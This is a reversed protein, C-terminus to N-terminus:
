HCGSDHCPEGDWLYASEYSSMDLYPTAKEGRWTSMKVLYRKAEVDVMEGTEHDLEREFADKIGTVKWNWGTTELTSKGIRKVYVMKKTIKTVQYFYNRTQDYGWSSVFIDAVKVPNVFAKAAAKRKTARERKAVATQQVGTVYNAIYIERRDVDKFHYHFDPKQRKGSFGMAAPGDGLEYTYVELGLKEIEVVPSHDKPIYFERKFM